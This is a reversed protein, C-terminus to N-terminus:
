LKSSVIVKKGDTKINIGSARLINFVQSAPVDRSISGRFREKSVEGVWEVRVDYWRAIQRMITELDTDNFRFQGNKWAISEEMDAQSVEIERSNKGTSARQGPSLMVERGVNKNKDESTFNVKVKGKVLTTTVSQEDAYANVNFETGLVEVEQNGSVVQFPNARDGMSVVDFFAEGTLEVRRTDSDFRTPFRLSSAANLWVKTGDPLRLRYQGGNPTVITNFKTERGLGNEADLHDYAIDGAPSKSIVAYGERAIEGTNAEDLDITRGGDLVLIARDRGPLLEESVVELAADQGLNKEWFLYGSVMLLVVAAAYGISRLGIFTSSRKKRSVEVAIRDWAQEKKSVRNFALLEELLDQENTLRLFLRENSDKKRRWGDLVAREEDSLGGKLHKALLEGIIYRDEYNDMAM